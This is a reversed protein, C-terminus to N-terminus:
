SYLSKPPHEILPSLKKLYLEALVFHQHTFSALAVDAQQDETINFMHSAHVHCGHDHLGKEHDADSDHLHEAIHGDDFGAAHVHIDFGCTLVSLQLAFFAVLALTRMEYCHSNM